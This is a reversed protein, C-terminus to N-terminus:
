KSANEAGKRCGDYQRRRAEAGTMSIGPAAAAEIEWAMTAAFAPSVTITTSPTYRSCTKTFDFMVSLARVPKFDIMSPFPLPGATVRPPPAAM